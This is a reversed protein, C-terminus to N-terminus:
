GDIAKLVFETKHRWTLKEDISEQVRPVRSRGNVLKRLIRGHEDIPAVHVQGLGRRGAGAVPTTVVPLGAARYEYIKIVDGGVEYPGGVGHPVWGLDFTELLGPVKEYNVDGLLSVNPETELPQRYGSDLIPGAFVFTFDPCSRVTSLIGELDLRFGIKGVYGVTIAGSARSLTSFREPDCGNLVLVCDDRGFSRALDLTGEANATISTATDFLRAYADRVERSIATFAQHNLWDDLLDFHLRRRGNAINPFASSLGLIPNWTVVPAEADIPARYGNKTSLWWRRRESINPLRWSHPSVTSVNVPLRSASQKIAKAVLPRLYQPEPRSHIVTPTARLRAMWEIFHADRTRFGEVLMKSVGHMPYAHLAPMSNASM